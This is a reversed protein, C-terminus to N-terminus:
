HINLLVEQTLEIFRTAVPSMHDTKPYAIGLERTLPPDLPLTQIPYKMDLVSMQPLISFGLGSAVMHMISLDERASCVVKLHIGHNVLLDPFDTYVERAPLLFPQDEFDSVPFSKMNSIDYDNPIVALMPDDYLPIWEMDEIASRSLFALDAKKEELCSLLEKPNGEILELTVSPYEKRFASIIDPLWNHSISALTAITLHGGGSQGLTEVVHDLKRNVDLLERVLPLIREAEATLSVGHKNRVFLPFGLEAEMSKLVHSVGSQTYGMRIGSKTFNKTTAVDLFLEYRNLEM